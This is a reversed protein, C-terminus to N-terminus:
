KIPFIIDTRIKYPDVPKGNKDIPDTVYIEYPAGASVKKTDKMRDKVADYGQSLLNYPGYFHAVVVNGANLERTQVGPMARTGKKNVPVGAEFFYPAKQKKYWAMPAGATKLNNRKIYDALKTGYIKALKLSIREYTAASDRCFIIIRKPAITDVINIIPPREYKAEPEPKVVKKIAPKISDAKVKGADNGTNSNCSIMLIGAFYLTCSFLHKLLPKMKM